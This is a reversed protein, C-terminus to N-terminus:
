GTNFNAVPSSVDLLAPEEFVRHAHEIMMGILSVIEWNTGLSDWNTACEVEKRRETSVYNSRAGLGAAVLFFIKMVLRRRLRGHVM